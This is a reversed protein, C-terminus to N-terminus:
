LTKVDDENLFAWRLGRVSEKQGRCVKGISSPDCGKSHGAEAASPFVEGTDLCVVPRLHKSPPRKALGFAENVTWSRHLRMRILGSSRGYHESAEEITEFTRDGPMVSHAKSYRKRAAQEPTM